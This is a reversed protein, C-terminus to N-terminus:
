PSLFLNVIAGMGLAIFCYVCRTAGAYLIESFESKEKDDLRIPMAVGLTISIGIALLVGISVVGLPVIFWGWLISLVLGRSLAVAITCSVFACFKGFKEMNNEGETWFEVGIRVSAGVEVCVDSGGVGNRVTRM